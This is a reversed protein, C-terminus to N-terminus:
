ATTNGETSEAELLDTLPGAVHVTLVANTAITLFSLSSGLTGAKKAM